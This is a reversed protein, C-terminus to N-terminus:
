FLRVYEIGESVGFVCGCLNVKGVAVTFVKGKKNGFIRLM